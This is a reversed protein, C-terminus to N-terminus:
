TSISQGLYSSSLFSSCLSNCFKPLLVNEIQLMNFVFCPDPLNILVTKFHM